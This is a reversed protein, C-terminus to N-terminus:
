IKRSRNSIVFPISTTVNQLELYDIEKIGEIIETQKISLEDNLVDEITIFAVKVKMVNTRSSNGEYVDLGLSNWLSEETTLLNRRPSFGLSNVHSKDSNGIKSVHPEYNGTQLTVTPTSQPLSREVMTTSPFFFILCFFVAMFTYTVNSPLHITWDSKFLDDSQFLDDESFHDFNSDDSSSTPTSPTSSQSIVPSSPVIPYPLLSSSSSNKLELLKRNEEKLKKNELELQLLREQLQSNHQNLQDNKVALQNHESKKKNRSIAAYERNKILRRQIKSQKHEKETLPRKQSIRKIHDDYQQSSYQLLDNRSLKVRTVDEEVDVPNSTFTPIEGTNYYVHQPVSIPTTQTQYILPPQTYVPNYLSSIYNSNM